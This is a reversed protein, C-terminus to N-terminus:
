QVEYVLLRDPNNCVIYVYKIRQTSEWEIIKSKHWEIDAMLRQESFLEARHFYLCVADSFLGTARKVRGLQHNKQNLAGGYHAAEETITHIDMIKGDLELDLAPPTKRIKNLLAGEDRLIASHGLRFLTNQCEAELQPNTLGFAVIAKDKTNHGVHTAKLAGTKEDFQVGKYDPAQKLRHYDARREEILKEMEKVAKEVAKKAGPYANAIYPHTDSFLQAAKGPNIDLGPHPNNGGHSNAPVPTAPDDTATLTCKCNWRDGPRHHSWFPHDVPLVTGWFPLHDAGPNPSTSPM